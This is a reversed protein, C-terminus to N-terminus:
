PTTIIPERTELLIKLKCIGASNPRIINTLNRDRSTPFQFSNNYQEFDKNWHPTNSLVQLKGNIFFLIELIAELCITSVSPNSIM